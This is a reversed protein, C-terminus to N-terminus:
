AIKQYTLYSGAYIISANVNSVNQAWSLSLVGPATVVLTFKAFTTAPVGGTSGASTSFTLGAGGILIVPTGAIGGANTNASLGLPSVFTVYPAAALTGTFPMSWQIAGGGTPYSYAFNIEILYTGTALTPTVLDPDNSLTANSARSNNAAKFLIGQTRAISLIRFATGDYVLPLILGAPLGPVPLSGDDNIIAKNGLANVNINVVSSTTTNALSIQMGMGATYAFALGAATAVTIQNVTGSVDVLYNSYTAMDNISTELESFNTDLQSLPIPGTQAAFTNTVTVPKSM